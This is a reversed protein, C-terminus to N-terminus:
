HLDELTKVRDLVQKIHSLQDRIAGSIDSHLSPYDELFDEYEDVSAKEGRICEELVSEDNDLSLAAKIDIWARHMSGTFSGDTDPDFDPNYTRLARSLRAAFEQRQTAEDMMFDRLHFSDVNEAAKKFGKYADNNKEILANVKKSIKEVTDM